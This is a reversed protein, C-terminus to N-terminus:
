QGLSMSWREGVDMARRMAHCPLMRNVSERLREQRRGWVYTGNRGRM